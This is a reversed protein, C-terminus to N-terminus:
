EPPHKRRAPSPFFQYLAIGVIEVQEDPGSGLTLPAQDKWRPDNSAFRLEWRSNVYFAQKITNEVESRQHRYREVHVYDGSQLDASRISVCRVREGDRAFQDISTGRIILDYQAEIPYGPLPPFASREKAFNLDTVESCALFMGAGVEGLTLIESHETISMDNPLTGHKQEFHPKEFPAGVADRLWKENCGLFEAIKSVHRGPSTPGRKQWWQSVASRTIGLYNALDTAQKGSQALAWKVRKGQTDMGPPTAIQDGNMSDLNPNVQSFM